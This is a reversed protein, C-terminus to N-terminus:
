ACGERSVREGAAPMPAQHADQDRGVGPMRLDVADDARELLGRLREGTEAHLDLEQRRVAEDGDGQRAIGLDAHREGERAGGGRDDLAPAEVGHMDRGLPRDAHGRPADAQPPM